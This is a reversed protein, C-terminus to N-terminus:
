FSEIRKDLPQSKDLRYQYESEKLEKLKVRAEETVNKPSTEFLKHTTTILAKDADSTM